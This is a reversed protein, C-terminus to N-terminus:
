EPRKTKVDIVGQNHIVHYKEKAAKGRIVEISEIKDPDIMNLAKVNSVEGDIIITGEFNKFFETDLEVNREVTRVPSAEQASLFFSFSIFVLSLLIRM